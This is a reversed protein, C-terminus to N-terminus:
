KDRTTKIISLVKEAIDNTVVGGRLEPGNSGSFAWVIQHCPEGLALEVKNEDTSFRVGYFANNACRIRASIYASDNLLLQKITASDAKNLTMLEGDIPYGAIRTHSSFVNRQAEEVSVVKLKGAFAQKADKVIQVSENMTPLPSALNPPREACATNCLVPGFLIWILKHWSNM